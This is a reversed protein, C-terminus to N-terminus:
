KAHVENLWDDMHGLARLLGLRAKALNLRAEQADIYKQREDIQALEGAKPSVQAPAGPAVGAGNGNEIETQVTKLDDAAIQQKLSAVEAQADLDRLNANLQTIQLDNQRQAEEAEVTARLADADSERGKARHSMDFLPININFGSFFNNAPLPHATNFYQNVNNLLTTNRNYQLFFSLQPIYNTEEDGKALHQKSVAILRAAAVGSVTVPPDGGNVKPVEPISAHDPIISGVPLGTLTSLQKELTAVRSELHIHALKVNAATLKAELLDHLSDVGAEARQQEIEVLRAACQEEAQAAQLERNVTDLEIYALSADLAVQERADKLRTTAAQIGSNAAHIYYKQPISFVLSQVTASYLSPPQGTFGVEPFAPIGTSFSLSPIFVDKSESLVAQAKDVDAQAMRVATSNRQALDVVTKLSVQAPALASGAALAVAAILLARPRAAPHHTSNVHIQGTV